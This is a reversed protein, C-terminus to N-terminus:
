PAAGRAPATAPRTQPPTYPNKWEPEYAADIGRPEINADTYGVFYVAVYNSVDWIKESELDRKFYPMSTGTIGNMVQYYLLGGLYKGNILHRRLLTLNLPPPNLYPTARGQGDGIAGHCGACQDQYIKEGRALDATTAPYPNPMELWVRPVQDHLWQINKDPGRAYAQQAETRWRNQREVRMQADSGGQGQVYATLLRIDTQGLFEWAPMLSQPRTFRPNIFHALHWDDPHEGGAQSLDPGTRQTGLIAPEQAVYDGPEALREAGLDWDNTRIYRSHCYSCGNQVYLRNGAEEESSWPRWTDSPAPHMTMAPILVMIAMSAWFTLLAGIVLLAPTVRM